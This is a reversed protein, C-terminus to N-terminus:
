CTEVDQQDDATVAPQAPWAPKAANWVKQFEECFHIYWIGDRDGLLRFTPRRYHSGRFTTLRLEIRGNPNAEWSSPSTVIPDYAYLTYPPLYNVVRVELKGNPQATAM